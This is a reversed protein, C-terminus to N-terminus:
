CDHEYLMVDEDWNPNLKQLWYFLRECEMYETRKGSGSCIHAYFTISGYKVGKRREYIYRKLYEMRANCFSLMLDYHKKDLYVYKENAYPLQKEIKKLINVNSWFLKSHLENELEEFAECPLYNVDKQFYKECIDNLVTKKAKIIYMDFGM